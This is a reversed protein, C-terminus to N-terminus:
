ERPTNELARSAEFEVRRSELEAVLARRWELLQTLRRDPRLHLFFVRVERGFNRAAELYLLAAIGFLPMAAIVDLRGTLLVAALYYLPFTVLGTLLKVTGQEVREKAVASAVWAPIKYPLYHFLAGLLFPVFGLLALLLRPGLYRAVAGPRYRRVLGEHTLGLVELAKRYRLVQRRLRSYEIPHRNRFDSVADVLTRDVVLREASPAPDRSFFDRLAAVLEEDDQDPVHLAIAQLAAEIKGTLERVADVERNRRVADFFPSPDLPEGFCVLADSRFLERNSFSLGAPVLRVGLGFGSKAEAELVIRAAGTKLPLVANREHSVGEPFLCIAGGEALLRHCADFTDVNRGPEVPGEHRRHIPLVGSARLVRALFPNRFLTAKALFHLTRSQVTGLLLVDLLMNPHNAVVVVPGERPVREAGEVAVRRHFLFVVARAVPLLLRYLPARRM